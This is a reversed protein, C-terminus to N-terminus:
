QATSGLSKSLTSFKVNAERVDADFHKVWNQCLHMKPIVTGDLKAKYKPFYKKIQDPKYGGQKMADQIVQYVVKNSITEQRDKIDGKGDWRLLYIRKKLLERVKPLDGFHAKLAAHMAKSEKSYNKRYTALGNILDRIEKDLAKHEPSLIKGKVLKDLAPLIMTAGLKAM